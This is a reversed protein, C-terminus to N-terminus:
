LLKQFDEKEILKVPFNGAQYTGPLPFCVDGRITFYSQKIPKNDRTMTNYQFESDNVVKYTDKPLTNCRYIFHYGNKTEIIFYVSEIIENGVKEIFKKLLITDKTDIDIEVYLKGNKTKHLYSIYKSQFNLPINNINNNLYDNIVDSYFNKLAIIQNRPNFVIYVSKAEEQLDEIIIPTNVVKNTIKVLSDDKLYISKNYFLNKYKIKEDVYKQRSSLSIILAQRDNESFLNFTEKCYQEFKLLETESYIM